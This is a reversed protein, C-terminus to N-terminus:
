KVQLLVYHSSQYVAPYKQLLLALNEHLDRLKDLEILIYSVYYTQLLEPTRASGEYMELIDHERTHYDIGHTWLWGRYGMVIQRGALCPIPHNHKDSTLFIADAPTHERVYNALAIDDNSFMLWHLHLERYVSLAGTLTLSAAFLLSIAIGRWHCRQRLVAFLVASGICSLLFSWLMLKMNDFDYPQFIIINTVLFVVLFAAWFTRFRAPSFFLALAFVFVHPSLNKFWFWLASEKGAMWGLQLRFFSEAHAPLIWLVQPLAFLLMPVAFAMWNLVPQKWSTRPETIEILFLAAAAMGLAVFSHFHVLPLLSLAIGAYLLHARRGGNWYNWLQQVVVLGLALGFVMARQPLVYDSVVNSFQLNHDILHAYDRPQHVVFSLLPLGFARYDQWFYFIGAISGNFFFLFPVWLAEYGHVVSRALFYMEMIAILLAILTSWILSAQLSVGKTILWASFLDPLFPYSLKTRPFVPNERVAGLGRRAFNSIMSLHWALDGWTSGGSYLGDARQQLMHSSLLACFLIGFFLVLFGPVAIDLLAVRNGEEVRINAAVETAPM